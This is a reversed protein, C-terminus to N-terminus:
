NKEVRRFPWCEAKDNWFILSQLTNSLVWYIFSKSNRTSYNRVRYKSSCLLLGEKSVLNYLTCKSCLFRVCLIDVHFNNLYYFHMICIYVVSISQFMNFEVESPTFAQALEKENEKNIFRFCGIDQNKDSHGKVM